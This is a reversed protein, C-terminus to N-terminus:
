RAIYRSVMLSSLGIFIIIIILFVARTINVSSLSLFIGIPITETKFPMSGAIM